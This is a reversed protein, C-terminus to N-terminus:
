HVECASEDFIKVETGPLGELKPFSTPEFTKRSVGRVWEVWSRRLLLLPLPDHRSFPQSPLATRLTTHPHPQLALQPRPRDPDETYAYAPPRPSPNFPAFHPSPFPPTSASAATSVPRSTPRLRNNAAPSRPCLSGDEKTKTQRARGPRQSAGGGDRDERGLGPRSTRPGARRRGRAGWDHDDAGLTRARRVRSLPYPPAETPTRGEGAGAEAGGAGPCDLGPRWAGLGVSSCRPTWTPAPPTAPGSARLGSWPLFVRTPGRVAAGPRPLAETSPHSEGRAGRAPVELPLRSSPSVAEM